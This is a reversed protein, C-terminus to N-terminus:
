PERDGGGAPHRHYEILRECRARWGTVDGVKLLRISEDDCLAEFVARRLAADDIRKQVDPRARRLEETLLAYEDGFSAELQKRVTAALQPSAGATSVTVRFDGRDLSAPVLFDCNDPDDAVNVWAGAARADDAVRRNVAADDTCAFVLTAGALLAPEYSQAHCEVGPTARISADITPAVVHVVAGRQALTRVKRAAVEGGGVVLCKRGNLRLELAYTSAMDGNYRSKASSAWSGTKLNRHATRLRRGDDLM